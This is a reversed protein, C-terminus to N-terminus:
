PKAIALIRHHLWVRDSAEYPKPETFKEAVILHRLRFRFPDGDSAPSTNNDSLMQGQAKRALETSKDIDEGQGCSRLEVCTLTSSVFAYHCIHKILEIFEPTMHAIEDIREIQTLAHLVGFISV